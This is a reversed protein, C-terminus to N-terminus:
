ARRMIAAYFCDSDLVSPPVLLDGCETLLGQTHLGPLDPPLVRSFWPHRRLFEDVVEPGEARTFTCVTYYLVGGPRVLRAAHHILDQQRARNSSVDAASRRWKLEPHRRVTGLGSCPADLVVLDFASAAFPPSTLDATAVLIRDAKMSKLRRRLASIKSGAVDSALITAEPLDQAFCLSKTGSGACPDLVTLSPPASGAVGEEEMAFSVRLPLSPSPTSGGPPPLRSPHALCCISGTALAAVLQSALDQPWFLGKLFPATEYPPEDPPLLVAEPLPPCREPHFGLSSLHSALDDGSIRDTNARLAIRAPRNLVELERLHGDGFALKAEEVVWEPCSFRAEPRLAGRGSALAARDAVALGRLLANVFGAVRQGHTRKAIEVYSSVAAYDPTREVFLLEYAALRLLCLLRVDREPLGKKVKGRLLHDIYGRERLTGLALANVMAAVRPELDRRTKEQRLAATVLLNKREVDELVSLATSRANPRAM